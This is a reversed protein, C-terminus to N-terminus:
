REESPPSFTEEDPRPRNPDIIESPSKPGPNLADSEPQLPGLSAPVASNAKQESPPAAPKVGEPSSAEAEPPKQWRLTRPLKTALGDPAKRSLGSRDYNYSGNAEGQYDSIAPSPEQWSRPGRQPRARGVAPLPKAEVRIPNDVVDKFWAVFTTVEAPSAQTIQATGGRALANLDRNVTFLRQDILLITPAIYGHEPREFVPVNQAKLYNLRSMYSNLHSQGLFVKVDLKRYKALFLASVIDGDTLYDTLLWIRKKGSSLLNLVNHRLDDFNATQKLNPGPAPLMAQPVFLGEIGTSAIAAPPLLSFSLGLALPLFRLTQPLALQSKLLAMRARAKRALLRLRRGSDFSEESASSLLVLAM